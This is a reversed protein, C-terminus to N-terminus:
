WDVVSAEKLINMPGIQRVTELAARDMVFLSGAYALGNVSIGRAFERSRPTLMMWGPTVLLNYPSGQREGDDGSVIGAGTEELMERYLAASRVGRDDAHAFDPELPVVVHRFGFADIRRFGSGRAAERYLPELPFNASDDVLPLPVLQLHKHVQSAGAMTGGNYFGLSPYEGLCRWLAEFDAATLLTEQHEFARTVLLLHHQVVNFKNLVAVHSPGIHGVTLAPEPPLFPSHNANKVHTRKDERKRALNTAVRVAFELGGDTLWELDTDISHLVGVDMASRTREVVTRWLAGQPVSLDM